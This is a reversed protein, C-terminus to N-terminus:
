TFTRPKRLEIILKVVNLLLAFSEALLVLYLIPQINLTVRVENVSLTIVGCGTILLVYALVLCAHAIALAYSKAGSLAQSLGGLSAIVLALYLTAQPLEYPANFAAILAAPLLYLAAFEAVARLAGLAVKRAKM